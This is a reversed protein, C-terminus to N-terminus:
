KKEVFVQGFHITLKKIKTDIQELNPNGRTRDSVDAWGVQDVLEKVFGVMGFNHVSFDADFVHNNQQSQIKTKSSLPEFLRGDPFNKFYGTGWDEIVYIGRPKLFKNFLINFSCRSLNGIHAADDIIIDFGNPATELAMRSIFQEDDQSGQYYRIREPLYEFPCSELDLGIIEANPFYERWMLLSGGHLVGIELIRIPLLRFREFYNSYNEIFGASLSKDTNYKKAIELLNKM